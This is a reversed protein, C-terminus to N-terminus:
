LQGLLRIVEKSSSLRFQAKTLGRGVKISNASLPLVAFLDEDTLDDGIAIVFNYGNALWRRAAVGKSVDANKIELIKNGQMLRLNNRKLLPGLVRKIAVLNKQSYYSSAGRYHWVLSHPKTELSSGPTQEVYKNLVPIVIDQWATSKDTISEWRKGAQRIAAGHESVLNIRLDGFWNELEPKGRGSILVVENNDKASLRKLLSILEDSPGAKTYDRTYPSLTGDYDLLFLRKSSDKYDKILKDEMRANLTRTLHPTGPLPQALADVFSKAWHQVTNHSLHRRMRKIRRNLERRRMILARNLAQVLDDTDKPNVILADKLEEAAGATQSLVLVGHHNSAVFEKAALNMGDKIPIIFAVDAIQFLATVSEFPIPQNIYELPQWKNTGFEQNIEKALKDLKDSLKQYEIIDTRSPAAVMVFIVKGRKNPYTDLFQRYAKLREVLGKSPDLRDVSAIVKLGKYKVKYKKVLDKVDKSKSAEAFKAYDIGMPFEAVRVQRGKYSIQHPDFMKAELTSKCCDLFNNVYSPTHFGILDAGLMGGLLKDAETIPRLQKPEPFPIHLFFGLSSNRLSQRLLGPLLLLQYDHVWIQSKEGAHTLVADHFKKNVTRYSSWWQELQKTEVPRAPLGHFYPWLVSNSYGNYFDDIQKNTLFVPVYGQKALRKIITQKDQETLDDSAIGPWGIWLNGRQNSVYSSLGTALGGLSSAFSLKGNEKKVSIPLRNSVIIVQPMDTSILIGSRHGYYLPL